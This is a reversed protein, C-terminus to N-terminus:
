FFYFSINIQLSHFYFCLLKYSSDPTKRKHLSTAKEEETVIVTGNLLRPLCGLQQFFSDSPTLILNCTLM